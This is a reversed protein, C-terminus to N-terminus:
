QSWSQTPCLRKALKTCVRTILLPSLPTSLFVLALTYCPSTITSHLCIKIINTLSHKKSTCNYPCQISNIKPVISNINLLTVQHKLFQKTYITFLIYIDLCQLQIRHILHFIHLADWTQQSLQRSPHFYHLTCCM